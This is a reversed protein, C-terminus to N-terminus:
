DLFFAKAELHEAYTRSLVTELSPKHLFFLYDHEQPHLSAQIAAIGPNNIPGPPLGYNRYTNYPDDVETDRFTPQLNSTGLVYNVTADSELKIHQNLRNWFVGAIAAEDGAPSEKQVISALTIIEFVSMGLEAAREELDEPAQAHFENLMKYILQQPTTDALIFYTEPLLYGELSAGQPRSALLPYIQSDIEIEQAARFFTGEPWIGINALAQDIDAMMWGEPITVRIHDFVADGSHIKSLIRTAPSGAQLLYRGAQLGTHIGSLRAYLATLRASHVLGHQKLTAAIANTGQGAEITIITDENFGTPSTLLAWAIAASALLALIIATIMVTKGLALLKKM